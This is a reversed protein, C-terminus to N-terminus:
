AQSKCPRCHDPEWGFVTRVWSSEASAAAPPSGMGPIQGEWSQPRSWPISSDSATRTTCGAALLTFLGVLLALLPQRIHKM